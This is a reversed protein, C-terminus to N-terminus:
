AGKALVRLEHSIWHVILMRLRAHSSLDDDLAAEAMITQAIAHDDPLPLEMIWRSLPVGNLEIMYASVAGQLTKAQKLSIGAAPKKRTGKWKRQNSAYFEYAAEAEDQALTVAASNDELYRVLLPYFNNQIDLIRAMALIVEDRLYPPPDRTRLIDLLVSLSNPSGYIGFAEVGM